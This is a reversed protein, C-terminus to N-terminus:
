QNNLVHKTDDLASVSHPFDSPAIENFGHLKAQGKVSISFLAGSSTPYEFGSKMLLASNVDVDQLRTQRNEEFTPQLDAHSPDLFEEAYGPQKNAYQGIVKGGGDREVWPM